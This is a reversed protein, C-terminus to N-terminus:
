LPLIEERLPDFKLRRKQVYAINGLHSAMASRHGIYVDGNPLKRSRPPRGESDAPLATRDSHRVSLCGPPLSPSSAGWLGGHQMCNSLRHLGLKRSGHM